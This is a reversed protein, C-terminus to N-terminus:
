RDDDKTDLSSWRGVRAGFVHLRTGDEVKIYNASMTPLPTSGLPLELVDWRKSMASFAYVFRGITNAVMADGVIPLVKGEAPERLDQLVWDGADPEFAALQHIKPGQAMVTLVNQSVIPTAKVGAPVQYVKWVGRQTSQAWIKNQTPSLVAIIQASEITTIAPRQSGGPGGDAPGNFQKTVGGFMGMGRGPGPPRGPAAKFMGGDPGTLRGPAANIKKLEDKLSRVEDALEAQAKRLDDVAKRMDDGEGRIREAQAVAPGPPQADSQRAVLIVSGALLGMFLGATALTKLKTMLM